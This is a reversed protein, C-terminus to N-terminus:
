MHANILPSQEDDDEQHVPGANEDNYESAIAQARMVFDRCKVLSLKQSEQFQGMLLHFDRTM